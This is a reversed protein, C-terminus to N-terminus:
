QFHFFDDLLNVIFYVSDHKNGMHAKIVFVVDFCGTDGIDGVVVWLQIGNNSTVHVGADILGHDITYNDSLRIFIAAGKRTDIKLEFLFITLVSQHVFVAKGVFNITDIRIVFHVLQVRWIVFSKALLSIAYNSFKCADIKYRLILDLPDRLYM